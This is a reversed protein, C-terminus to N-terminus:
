PTNQRGAYSPEAASFGDLKELYPMLLESVSEREDFYVGALLLYVVMSGRRALFVNGFPTGDTTLVGFRSFDGWQFLESREDVLVETDGLMMFAIKTGGWISTYTGRADAETSEFTLSYTLYPAAEDDPLDYVYEIEYSDDFYRTKTMREGALDPTYEAMWASLHWIDLLLAREERTPELTEGSAKFLVGLALLLAVTGLAAVPTLVVLWLWARRKQPTTENM